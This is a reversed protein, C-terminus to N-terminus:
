WILENDLIDDRPCNEGFEGEPCLEAWTTECKTYTMGGYTSTITGQDNCLIQTITCDGTPPVVTNWAQTAPGGMVGTTLGAWDIFADAITAIPNTQVPGKWVLTGCGAVEARADIAPFTALLASLTLFTAFPYLHTTM